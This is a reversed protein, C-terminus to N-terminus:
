QFVNTKGTGIHIISRQKRIPIPKFTGGSLIIRTTDKNIIEIKVFETKNCYPMGNIRNNQKIRQKTNHSFFMLLNQIKIQCPKLEQVQIPRSSNSNPDNKGSFHTVDLTWKVWLFTEYFGAIIYPIISSLEQMYISEIANIRINGQLNKTYDNQFNYRKKQLTKFKVVEIRNNKRLFEGSKLITWNAEPNWLIQRTFPYTCHLDFEQISNYYKGQPFYQQTYTKSQFGVLGYQTSETISDIKSFDCTYPMLSHLPIRRRVQERRPIHTTEYGLNHLNNNLVTTEENSHLMQDPFPSLHVPQYNDNFKLNFISVHNRVETINIATTFFINM